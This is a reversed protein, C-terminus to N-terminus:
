YVRRLGRKTSDNTQDGDNTTEVVLALALPWPSNRASHSSELSSKHGLFSFSQVSFDYHLSFRSTSSYPSPVSTMLLPGQSTSLKAGGGVFVRRSCVCWTLVFVGVVIGVVVQVPVGDAGKVKHEVAQAAGAVQNGAKEGVGVGRSRLGAATTESSQLQEKLRVIEDKAAQLEARLTEAVKDVTSSASSPVDRTSTSPKEAGTKEAVTNALGTLGVAAAAGAVVGGATATAQSASPIPSEHASAPSPSDPTADSKSLSSSAGNPTPSPPSGMTSAFSQDYNNTIVSASPTGTSSSSRANSVPTSQRQKSTSTLRRNRNTM